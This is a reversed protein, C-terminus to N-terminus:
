HRISPCIPNLFIRRKKLKETTELNDRGRCIVLDAELLANLLEGGAQFLNVGPMRSGSSIVSIEEVGMRCRIELLEEATVCTEVPCEKGAVVVRYGMEALKGALWIDEVADGERDSLILVNGRSTDLARIIGRLEKEGKAEEVFKFGEKRLMRKEALYPDPNGTTLRVIESIIGRLEQVTLEEIWEMEMLDRLNQRVLAALKPNRTSRWILDEGPDGPRCPLPTGPKYEGEVLEELLDLAMDERLWRGLRLNSLNVGSPIVTYRAEVNRLKVGQRVIANEFRCNVIRSLVKVGYIPEGLPPYIPNSDFATNHAVVEKLGVRDGLRTNGTLISNEIRCYNGIRVQAGIHVRGLLYCARGIRYGPEATIRVDPDLRVGRELFEKRNAQFIRSEGEMVASWRNVGPPVPSLHIYANTKLGDEYFIRVLDVHHLEGKLHPKLRELRRLVEIRKAITLGTNTYGEGREFRRMMEEREGDSMEAWERTGIFRGSEDFFLGGKGIVTEPSKGCLTIDAGKIIHDVLTLLFMDRELFPEDGFAIGILDAEIGELMEAAAILAGGTGNPIEQVAIIAERGILRESGESEIREKMQPNVVIIPPRTGPLHRLALQLVNSEGFWIDINKNLLSEPDIRTGRGAALVVWQPDTMKHLDEPSEPKLRESIVSILRDAIEAGLDESIRVGLIDSLEAKIEEIRM